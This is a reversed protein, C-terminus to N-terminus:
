GASLTRSFMQERQMDLPEVRLGGRRPDRPDRSHQLEIVNEVPQRVLERLALLLADGDRARHHAIGVAEQEVLRQPAEVDLQALGHAAVDLRHQPAEDFAVTITM